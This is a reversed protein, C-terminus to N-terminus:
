VNHTQGHNATPSNKPCGMNVTRRAKSMMRDSKESVDRLNGM